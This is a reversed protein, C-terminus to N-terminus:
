PLPIESSRFTTLLSILLKLMDHGAPVLSALSGLYEDSLSQCRRFVAHFGHPEPSLTRQSVCVEDVSLVGGLVTPCPLFSDLIPPMVNLCRWKIKRIRSSLASCEADRANALCSFSQLPVSYTHLRRASSRLTSRAPPDMRWLGFSTHLPIGFGPTSSTTTEQKSTERGDSWAHIAAPMSCVYM